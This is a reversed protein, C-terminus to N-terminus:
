SFWREEVDVREVPLFSFGPHIYTPFGRLEEMFEIIQGGSEIRQYDIEILGWIDQLDIGDPIIKLSIGEPKVPDNFHVRLQGWATYYTITPKGIYYQGTLPLMFRIKLRTLGEFPKPYVDISSAELRFRYFTINVEGDSVMKIQTLWVPGRFGRRLVALAYNGKPIVFYAGGQSDTLRMEGGIRVYTYPLPVALASENGSYTISHGLDSEMLYVRIKVYEPEAISLAQRVEQIMESVFDRTASLNFTFLLFASSLLFIAIVIFTIKKWM